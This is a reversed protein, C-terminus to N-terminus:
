RKEEQARIAPEKHGWRASSGALAIEKRRSESIAVARATGGAVGARRAAARKRKVDTSSEETAERVLRFAQVNTDM